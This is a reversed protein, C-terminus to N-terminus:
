LKVLKKQGKLGKMNVELLYVAKNLSSINIKQTYITEDKYGTAIQIKKGQMDVAFVEFDGMQPHEIKLSIEDEAPNPYVQLAQSFSVELGTPVFTFLNSVASCSGQTVMLYYVGGRTPIYNDQIAGPIPQYEYYWQYTGAGLRNSTLRDTVFSVQVIFSPVILVSKVETKKDCDGALIRCYYEGTETAIYSSFTAGSIALSNKFWQLRGVTVNTSLQLLVQKTDCAINGSGSQDTNIVTTVNCEAIVSVIPSLQSDGGGNTAIVRYYYTTGAVINKTDNFSLRNALIRGVEAFSSPVNSTSRLIRFMVADGAKNYKWRIGIEITSIAEAYPETPANPVPVNTNIDTNIQNSLVNPSDGASNESYIRFIYQQNPLLGSVTTSTSNAPVEKLFVFFGNSALSKIEIVFREENNSNDLWTLSATTTGTVNAVFTGPRIPVDATIAAAINSPSSPNNTSGKIAVVKYFYATANTLGTNIFITTNAPQTSVLVFDTGQTARYVEYGTENTANDVWSLEISSTSVTGVELFTPPNIPEPLTTASNEDSYASNGVLGLARVQYYYKTNPTLNADVYSVLSNGSQNAPATYITAYNGTLGTKRQLEFGTENTSEDQWSIEITTSSTAFPSLDTPTEPINGGVNLTTVSISASYGSTGATNKARVRYIYNTGATLGTVNQTTGSINPITQIPPNFNPNTALAVDLEYETAGIVQQWNATFSINVINTALVAVPADPAQLSPTVSGDISFNSSLTNVNVKIRFLYQTGTVLGTIVQSTATAPSVPINTYSAGGNNSIELTYSTAGTTATWNATFSTATVGTATPMNPTTIVSIVNSNASVGGVNVARVRVYYIKGANLGTVTQSLTTVSFPSNAIPNAFLNDTAVDLEYGTAGIVQQWNAQFSSTLVSSTTLATPALPPNSNTLQSGSTYLSSASGIIAKIRFYYMTNPNLGVVNITGNTTNGNIYRNDFNPIFFGAGFSSNTSIDLRYEDANINQWTLMFGTSTVNSANINNPPSLATLTTVSVENSTSTVSPVTNKAKVRVIYPTNASLTNFTFTYPPNTINQQVIFTGGNDSSYEVDYNTAGSIVGWNVTFGSSTISNAPVTISPSPLLTSVTEGSTPNLSEVDNIVARVRYYYTSSPNINNGSVIFSTVNGVNKANYGAVFTSFSQNTSVDLFYNSAGAILAWNARFSLDTINDANLLGVVPPSDVITISGNMTTTSTANTIRVYYTNGVITTFTVVETGAGIIENTCAVDTLDYCETGTYVSIVADQNSNVYKVSTSTSNATFKVWGDNKNTLSVCSPTSALEHNRFSASIPFSIPFNIDNVSMEEAECVLDKIDTTILNSRVTIAGSLGPTASFNSVRLHYTKGQIATFTLWETARENNNNQILNQCSIDLPNTCNTNFEFIQLGVNQKSTYEVRIQVDGATSLVGLNIWKDQLVTGPTSCISTTGANSINTPIQFSADQNNFIPLSSGTASADVANSCGYGSPLPNGLPNIITFPNESALLFSTNTLISPSFEIYTSPTLSLAVNDSGYTPANTGIQYVLLGVLQGITLGNGIETIGQYNSPNTTLSNLKISTIIADTSKVVWQMIQSVRKLNNPPTSSLALNSLFSNSVTVQGSNSFTLDMPLYQTVEGQQIGLPFTYTAGPNTNRVITGNVFGSGVSLLADAGLKLPNSASTKIVGQTLTLSQGLYFVNLAMSLELGKYPSMGSLAKDVIINGPIKTGTTTLGSSSKLITNGAGEFRFTIRDNAGSFDNEVFVITPNASGQVILRPSTPTDPNIGGSALKLNGKVAMDNFLILKGGNTSTNSTFNNFYNTSPNDNKYTIDINSGLGDGFEVSLDGVQFSATSILTFSSTPSAGDNKIRFISSPDGGKFTGKEMYFNNCSLICNSNFMQFVAGSGVGGEFTISEAILIVGSLMNIGGSYTNKIVISKVTVSSPINCNATGIGGVVEFIVDDGSLPAGAPLWNIAKSWDTDSVSIWTKQGWGESNFFIVLFFFLLFYKTLFRMYNNIIPKTM